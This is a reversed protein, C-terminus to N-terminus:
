AQKWVDDLRSQINEHDGALNDTKEHLLNISEIQKACIKNNAVTQEQIADTIKDMGAVFHTMHNNLFKRSEAQDKELNLIHRQEAAFKERDLEIKAEKTKKGVQLKFRVVWAFGVLFLVGFLISVAVTVGGAKLVESLFRGLWSFSM